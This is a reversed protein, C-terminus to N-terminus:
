TRGAHSFHLLINSLFYNFRWKSHLWQRRRRHEPATTAPDPPLVEAQRTDHYIRIWLHLIPTPSAHGRNGCFSHVLSVTTTYRTRRQVILALLYGDMATVRGSGPQMDLEGCLRGLLRFNRGYLRM